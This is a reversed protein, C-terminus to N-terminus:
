PAGDEFIAAGGHSELVLLLKADQKEVLFVLEDGILHLLFAGNIVRRDIGALHHLPRQLKGGGGDNQGVVM